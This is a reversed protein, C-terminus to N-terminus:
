NFLEAVDLEIGPPDLRLPGATVLRTLITGDKQRQHHVVPSGNLYIILYHEISPVAFYGSMKATEDLRVTSPSVVEVVVIPNEVYLADPDASAGCYVLVDPEYWKTDGIRVAAGDTLATCDLRARKIAASLALFVAGKAAVHRVREAAMAHITGDHLEFRGPQDEYWDLFEEM